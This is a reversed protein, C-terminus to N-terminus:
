ASGAERKAKEEASSGRLYLPELGFLEERTVPALRQAAKWLGGCRPLQSDTPARRVDEFVPNELLNVGPGSVCDVGRLWQQSEALSEIRLEEVARWTGEIREFRQRYILGQLADAIVGVSTAGEPTQEAIAAFTPVALLKCGTAYALSKASIVGVRLGTYSGPGLSVVVGELESPKLREAELSGAVMAALDRAHRRSGDLAAERAIGEGRAIAISGTRGSTELILWAKHMEAAVAIEVREM